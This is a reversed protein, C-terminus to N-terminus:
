AVAGTSEIAAHSRIKGKKSQRIEGILEFIRFSKDPIEGSLRNAETAAEALTKHRKFRSRGLPREHRNCIVIWYKKM